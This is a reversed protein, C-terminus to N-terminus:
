ETKVGAVTIDKRLAAIRAKLDETIVPTNPVQVNTADPKVSAIVEKFDLTKEDLEVTVGAKAMKEKMCKAKEAKYAKTKEKMLKKKKDMYAAFSGDSAVERIEEVLIAREEDDLDFTEDLSAMRENFKQEAAAAAQKSEIEALKAQLEEVAKGLGSARAELEAKAQEAAAAAEEKAKLEAAHKESLEKVKEEMFSQISAVATKAELKTFDTYHAELEQISKIVMPIKLQSKIESVSLNEEKINNQQTAAKTEPGELENEPLEPKNEPEEPEVVSDQTVIAIGKIGSAPNRVIGAGVPLIDDKLVRFVNMGGEKGSGGNAKLKTDYKDWDPDGPKVFRANPNLANKDPSVCIWYSNFLLEFSTSVALYNDSKENSAEEVLNCLEPDVVRWLYGGIVLQVPETLNAVEDEDIIENSPYLSWGVEDIVGVVNERSHERNVQKYEFKEAIELLDPLLIADDNRNGHNALVLNSAVVLLDPNERIKEKVEEDFIGTLDNLSAIALKQKDPTVPPVTRAYSEFLARHKFTKNRFTYM